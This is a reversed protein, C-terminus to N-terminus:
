VVSKRDAIRSQARAAADTGPYRGMLERYAAFATQGSTADVDPRKWARLYADGARLLALSAYESTPFEEAVKQFALGATALDGTQFMCEAVYYRVAAILSDAPGLEFQLKRFEVLATNFQGSRFAARARTVVATSPEVTSEVRAAQCAGLVVLSMLWYFRM